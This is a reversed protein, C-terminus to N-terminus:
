RVAGGIYESRQGSLQLLPLVTKFALRNSDGPSPIRTTMEDSNRGWSAPRQSYVPSSTLNATSLTHPSPDENSAPLQTLATSPRDLPLSPNLPTPFPNQLHATPISQDLYVTPLGKLTTQQTFFRPVKLSYRMTRYM